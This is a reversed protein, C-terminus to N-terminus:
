RRRPNAGRIGASRSSSEGHVRWDRRRSAGITGSENPRMTIFKRHEKFSREAAGIRCHLGSAGEGDGKLIAWASYRVANV